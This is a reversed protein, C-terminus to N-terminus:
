LPEPPAFVEINGNQERVQLKPLPAPSISLQHSLVQGTPAFSTLHCPCRLRDDPADFWLKCGQHTCVGSVAEPAGDVRRIFGSMSGVEFRRMGTDTVDASAAVAEWKGENPVLEGAATSPSETEKAVVFRDVTVAVAAAAAAASTATIVMRRTTGTPRAQPLQTVNDAPEDMQAALRKQLDALFEPRPADNDPKAAALDIATRIQAAEFDDPHFPRPRRGGLLDDIYRRMNRENM